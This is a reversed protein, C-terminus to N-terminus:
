GVQGQLCGCSQAVQEMTKGGEDGLIEESTLSVERDLKEDMLVGLEKEVPIRKITEKGM